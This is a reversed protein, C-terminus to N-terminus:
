RHPCMEAADAAGHEQPAGEEPNGRAKKVICPKKESLIWPAESEVSRM